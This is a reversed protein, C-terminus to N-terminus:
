FLDMEGSESVMLAGAVLGKLREFKLFEIAIVQYFFGLFYHLCSSFSLM